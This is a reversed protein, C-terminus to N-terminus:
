RAARYRRSWREGYSQLVLLVSDLVAYIAGAALLVEFPRYTVVFVQKAANTLEPVAVAAALATGKLLDTSHSIFSPLVAPLTQPLIIRIITRARSLGLAEAARWQGAPVSEYGARFVEAFYFAMYLTMGIVASPFPQLTVGLFPLGFFVFFLILLPPIGRFIWSVVALAAHIAPQRINRLEAVVVGLPTALVLVAVTLEVTVLTGRLLAPWVTLLIDFHLAM